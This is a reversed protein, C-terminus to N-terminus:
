MRDDPPSGAPWRDVLRYVFKLGSWTADVACIKVDVLGAALGAERVAAEHLDTELGAAKKPWSIWLLGDRALAGRARPLDRELTARDRAFLHIIRTSAALRARV